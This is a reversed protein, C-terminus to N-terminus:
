CIQTSMLPVLVLMVASTNPEPLISRLFPPESVEFVEGVEHIRSSLSNYWFFPKM